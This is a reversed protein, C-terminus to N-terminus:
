WVCFQWDNWVQEGACREIRVECFPPRQCVEAGWDNKELAAGNTFSRKYLRPPFVDLTPGTKTSHAM